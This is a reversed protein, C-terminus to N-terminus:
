VSIIINLVVVVLCAIFCGIGWFKTARYWKQAKQYEQGAKLFEPDLQGKYSDSLTLFIKRVYEKIVKKSEDSDVKSSELITSLDEKFEEFQVKLNEKHLELLHETVLTQATITLMLPDDKDITHNYKKELIQIVQKELEFVEM